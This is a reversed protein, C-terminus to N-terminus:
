DKSNDPIHVAVGRQTALRPAESRNGLRATLRRLGRGGFHRIAAVVGRPRARNFAIIGYRERRHTMWDRKYADDGSLYDVIAVKDDDIARRMLETTLVTGVSQKGYEELYALKFISAVGAKVIWIQAAVALGDLRLVGLRLWGERACLRCLEPVFEPHPESRNRWSHLYIREFDGIAEELASGDSRIVDIAFNRAELKKRARRSTNRMQSPRTAFYEEFSRGGVELYWNGFCFYRDVWFGSKRLEEITAMFFPAEPDIPRLDVIDARAEGRSAADALMAAAALTAAPALLPLAAPSYFNSLWELRRMGHQGPLLLPIVAAGSFDGALFAADRGDPLATRALLAYWELTQFIDAASNLDGATSPLGALEAPNGPDDARPLPVLPMKNWQGMVPRCHRDGTWSKNSPSPPLNAGRMATCADFTGIPFRRFIPYQAHARKM